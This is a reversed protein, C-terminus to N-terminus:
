YMKNVHIHYFKKIQDVSLFRVLFDYHWWLLLIDTCGYRVTCIKTLNKLDKYIVMYVTKYKETLREKDM